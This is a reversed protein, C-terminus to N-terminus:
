KRKPFEIKLTMIKDNVKENSKLRSVVLTALLVLIPYKDEITNLDLGFHTWVVIGLIIILDFIVEKTNNTKNM